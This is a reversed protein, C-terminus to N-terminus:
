KVPRRNRHRSSQDLRGIRKRAGSSDKAGLLELAGAALNRLPRVDNEIRAQALCGRFYAVLMQAKAKADPALILGEADADRIASEFYRQNHALIKRV